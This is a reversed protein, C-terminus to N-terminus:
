LGPKCHKPCRTGETLFISKPWFEGYSAFKQGLDGKQGRDRAFAHALTVRGPESSSSTVCIAYIAAQAETSDVDGCLRVSERRRGYM